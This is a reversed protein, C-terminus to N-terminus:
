PASGRVTPTHQCGRRHDKCALFRGSNLMLFFSVDYRKPSLPSFVIKHLIEGLDIIRPNHDKKQM